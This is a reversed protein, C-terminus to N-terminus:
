LSNGLEWPQWPIEGPIDITETGYLLQRLEPAIAWRLNGYKSFQRRLGDLSLLDLLIPTAVARIAVLVEAVVAQNQMQKGQEFVVQHNISSVRVLQSLSASAHLYSMTPKRVETSQIGYVYVGLEIGIVFETCHFHLISVSETGTRNRWYMGDRRFGNTSLVADTGKLLNDLALPDATKTSKSAM